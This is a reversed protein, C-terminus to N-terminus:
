RIYRITTSKMRRIPTGAKNRTWPPWWRHRWYCWGYWLLGGHRRCSITIIPCQDEGLLSTDRVPLRFVVVVKLFWARVPALQLLAFLCDCRSTTCWNVLLLVWYFSCYNSYIWFSKAIQNEMVDSKLRWIVRNPKRHLCFM